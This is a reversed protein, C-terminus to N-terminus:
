VDLLERIRVLATERSHIEGPTGAEALRKMCLQVGRHKSTTNKTAVPPKTPDKTWRRQNISDICVDLPTDLAIVHMDDPKPFQFEKMLAHTRNVDASILLGEFIVDNGAAAGMRVYNFIDDMKTITDCGGCATEYHGIVNLRRGDPRSLLYGIPQKRGEIKYASKMPYLKMVERILHSKGSGSTGRINIITM